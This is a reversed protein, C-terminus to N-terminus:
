VEIFIDGNRVNPWVTLKMALTVSVFPVTVILVAMQVRKRVRVIILVIPWNLMVSSLAFHIIIVLMSVITSNRTVIILANGHWIPTETDFTM